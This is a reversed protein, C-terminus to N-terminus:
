KKRKNDWPLKVSLFYNASLGPRTIPLVNGTMINIGAPVTKPWFDPTTKTRPKLDYEYNQFGTVITCSGFTHVQYTSNILNDQPKLQLLLLWLQV